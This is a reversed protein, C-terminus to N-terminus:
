SSTWSGERAPRPPPGGPQRPGRPSAEVGVGARRRGPLPPGRRADPLLYSGPFVPRQAHDLPRGRVQEPSMYLPTGMTMGTQTLEARAGALDRCLGFDAVKALGKRTLLINEPKLDRHILGVEGAAEVAMGAQKMISLAIPLDLRTKRGSVRAPQHGPRVGDRHLPHRRVHGFAYMHVINPHNLRAAAWAESEFRALITPNELLDPRLVKLAVHRDLSVQRALYVEGM